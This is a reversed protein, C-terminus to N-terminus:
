LNLNLLELRKTENAANEQQIYKFFMHYFNVQPTFAIPRKTRIFTIIKDMMEIM